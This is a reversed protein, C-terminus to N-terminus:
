CKPCAPILFCQLGLDLQKQIITALGVADRPSFLTICAHNLDIYLEMRTKEYTRRESWNSTCDARSLVFVSIGFM